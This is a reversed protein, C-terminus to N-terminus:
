WSKSRKPMFSLTNYNTLDIEKDWRSYTYKDFDFAADVPRNSNGTM